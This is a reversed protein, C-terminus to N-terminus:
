PAAAALAAAALLAVKRVNWLVPVQGDGDHGGPDFMRKDRQRKAFATDVAAIAPGTEAGTSLAEALALNPVFTALWGPAKPANPLPQYPQRELLAVIARRYERWYQMISTPGGDM